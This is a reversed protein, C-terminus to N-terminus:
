EFEGVQHARARKREITSPNAVCLMCALMLYDPLWDSNPHPAERRAPAFHGRVLLPAGGHESLRLRGGGRGGDGDDGHRGGRVFANLHMGTPVDSTSFTRSTPDKPAPHNPCALTSPWDSERTNRPVRSRSSQQDNCPYCVCGRTDGTANLSGLGSRTWSSGWSTQQRLESLYNWLISRTRGLLALLPCFLWTRPPRSPHCPSSRAKKGRARARRPVNKKEWNELQPSTYLPSPTLCRAFLVLCTMKTLQDCAPWM